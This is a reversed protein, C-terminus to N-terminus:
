GNWSEIASLINSYCKDAVQDKPHGKCLKVIRLLNSRVTSDQDLGHYCLNSALMLMRKATENSITHLRKFHPVLEKGVYDAGNANISINVLLWMVHKQLDPTAMYIRSCLRKLSPRLQPRSSVFNLLSNQNESLRLTSEGDTICFPRTITTLLALLKKIDRVIHDREIEIGLLELETLEAEEDEANEADEMEASFDTSSKALYSDPASYPYGRQFTRFCEGDDVGCYVSNRFNGAEADDFEHRRRKGAAPTLSCIGLREKKDKEDAGDRSDALTWVQKCDDKHQRQLRVECKRRFIEAGKAEELSRPDSDNPNSNAKPNPRPSETEFAACVEMTAAESRHSDELQTNENMGPSSRSLPPGGENEPGCRMREMSRCWRIFKQKTTQSIEAHVNPSTKSHLVSYGAARDERLTLLKELDKLLVDIEELKTHRRRNKENDYVLRRLEYSYFRVKKWGLPSNRLLRKMAVQSVKPFKYRYNEPDNQELLLYIMAAVHLKTSSFCSKTIHHALMTINDNADDTIQQAIKCFHPCVPRRPICMHDAGSIFYALSAGSPMREPLRTPISPRSIGLEKWMGLTRLVGPTDLFTIIHYAIYDPLAKRNGHKNGKKTFKLNRQPNAIARRGSLCTIQLSMAEDIGPPVRADRELSTDLGM